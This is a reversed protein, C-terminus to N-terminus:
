SVPFLTPPQRDLFPLFLVHSPSRLNTFSPVGALEAQARSYVHIAWRVHFCIFFILLLNNAKPWHVNFMQWPNFDDLAIIWLFVELAIWDPLLASVNQEQRPRRKSAMRTMRQQNIVKPAKDGSHVMEFVISTHKSEVFLRVRVCTRM